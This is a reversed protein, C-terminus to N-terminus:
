KVMHLPTVGAKQEPTKCTATVAKFHELVSSLLPSGRELAKAAEVLKALAYTRDAIADPTQEDFIAVGGDPYVM